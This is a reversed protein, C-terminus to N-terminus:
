LNRGEELVAKEIADIMDWEALLLTIDHGNWEVREVELHEPEDPELPAGYSDRSGRTAPYYTYDVELDVGNIIVNM